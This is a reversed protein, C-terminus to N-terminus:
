KKGRKKITKLDKYSIKRINAIAKEIAITDNLSETEKLFGAKKCIAEWDSKRLKIKTMKM